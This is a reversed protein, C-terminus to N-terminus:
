VHKTIAFQPYEKTFWRQNDKEKFSAAEQDDLKMAIMTSLKESITFLARKISHTGKLEAMDNDLNDRQNQIVRLLDKYEQPFMRQYDDVALRIKMKTKQNM